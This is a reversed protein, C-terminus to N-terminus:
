VSLLLKQVAIYANQYWLTILQHLKKGAIHEVAAIGEHSAVHALQLGGIVDGIAYIHSEKTQYFENTQIYGKEVVIDTNELGINQTNAQRGVSVLMKEAKFEKNEGNHEAQITVGNDKVLTEPLVKAGTVVKISKEQISTANRKFRRSRRTTINNQM